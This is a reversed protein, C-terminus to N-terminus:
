DKLVNNRRVEAEIIIQPQKVTLKVPAATIIVKKENSYNTRVTNLIPNVLDKGNIALLAVSIKLEDIYDELAQKARRGTIRAGRVIEAVASIFGRAILSSPTAGPGLGRTVTFGPM